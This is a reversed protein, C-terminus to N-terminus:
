DIANRWYLGFIYNVVFYMSYVVDFFEDFLWVPKKVQIVIKPLKLDVVAFVEIAHDNSFILTM